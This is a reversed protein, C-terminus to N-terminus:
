GTCAGRIAKPNSYYEERDLLRTVVAFRSGDVPDIVIGTPSSMPTAGFDYPDVTDGESERHGSQDVVTYCPMSPVWHWHGFLGSLMTHCLRPPYVGSRRAMEGSTEGHVFGAEHTCRLEALCEAQRPSSTIFKWRKLVPHGDDNTMGCACGDVRVAYLNWRKILGRLEKRLRGFVGSAVRLKHAGRKRSM